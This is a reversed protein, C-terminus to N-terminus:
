LPPECERVALSLAIQFDVILIASGNNTLWPRPFSSQRIGLHPEPYYYAFTFLCTALHM